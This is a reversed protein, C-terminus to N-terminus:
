VERGYGVAAYTFQRSVAAGASNRFVISFGTRSDGTIAFYDGTAMDYATIGISPTQFFADTFTAAYTGAGSALVASQEVRQQLELDAGLETIMINQAPDTTTAITKFQLGRGRVIANAFERWEGWTPTGTPDDQTTRVYVAANVRDGGTGDVYDWTDIDDAFDDWLQSGPIYPLTVLRRRLNVDFVAPLAYTSGFEYSGSASINGVDDITTLADFDGGTALDDWLTGGTLVLGVAGGLETIDTAFVMEDVNGSFPPTESEEAYTQLLYRPQPTPLDVVVTAADLSRRGGDDEFKVLYTGELLPVQKQTQSGAAASVIDNSEEWTAIVSDVSHRIIVKGGLLVDLETSRTWSLVASAEDIPILSLGAVTAPLATKGFTQKTLLAATTSPLLSAASLSFVQVEYTGPIVDLIEFDPADITLTTWNSDTYRWRARYQSVGVVPSWSVLLKVKAMGRDEYILEQANLNAPAAPIENLNTIDRPQLPIDREIYDYKGANHAIASISYSIGDEETISLVRWTSAEIDPTEYVWISNVNPTTSFPTLVPILVGVRTGVARTQVTGDPMMVSLTGGSAPLNTADDVTINYLTAAAIRGGRRAGAKVPDAISIIMGPRVVVGSDVSTSFSVVEGENWESYLLWEGARRAQGRSTCAFASLETTIVGYKAIASQDEVVEKATDRLDLDLYSVIAVTPRAKLSSSSYSFGAPTVNALTFLYAPDAPKDQAVTVAGASWYPMARFVSCMDNILKYAEELTQINANCSFRAELGGFGDPVQENAYVSAAYFAFKDLQAADIHDGFGYRTSTLLDYLCWCPCTTWQAAAFTGGWVGSYILRGTESDVTANDPIRVKIGRVLYSRTPINSFQEANIKLSVLASNPYRLKAYTIESYSTWYTRGEYFWYADPSPAPNSDYTLRTVKIDVPFAGTLQVLYDRQYGNVSRGSITDTVVRTYGGGNYQVDIAIEVSAGAVDGDQNTSQLRPVSITIRTANTDAATITRVVPTAQVVEVSVSSQTEILSAAPIHTQAQTGNRTEVTVGSFNYSGDANQLPTDDLFIGKDGGVIGGIEGESLLDVIQVYQNSQLSDREVYPERRQVIQAATQPLANGGSGAILRSM